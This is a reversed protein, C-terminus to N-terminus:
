ADSAERESAKEHLNCVYEYGDPAGDEDVAPVCECREQGSTAVRYADVARQMNAMKPNWEADADSAYVERWECAAEVVPRMREALAVEPDTDAYHRILAYADDRETTVRELEAAMEQMRAVMQADTNRYADLTTTVRELEAEPRLCRANLADYDSTSYTM